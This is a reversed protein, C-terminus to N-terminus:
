IRLVLGLLLLSLSLCNLLVLLLILSLESGIGMSYVRIDALCGIQYCHMSIIHWYRCIWVMHYSLGIWMVSAMTMVSVVRVSTSVWHLNCMQMMRLSYGILHASMLCRLDIRTYTASESVNSSQDNRRRHILVIVIVIVRRYHM